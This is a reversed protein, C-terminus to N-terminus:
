VERRELEGAALRRVVAEDILFSGTLVAGALAVIRRDVGAELVRYTGAEVRRVSGRDNSIPGEYTLYATRHDAIRRAPTGEPRSAVREPPDALQWTALTGQAELMLDWHEGDRTVHHLVVFRAPPDAVPEPMGSM